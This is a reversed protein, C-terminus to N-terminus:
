LNKNNWLRGPVVVINSIIIITTNIKINTIIIIKTIFNVFIIILINRHPHVKARGVESGLRSGLFPGM